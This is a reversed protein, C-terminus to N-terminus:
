RSDLHIRSNGSVRDKWLNNEQCIYEQIQGNPDWTVDFRVKWPANYAAPDDITAEYHLTYLDTRTLREILHLQDTHPKGGMDIWTGENFGVTDIVLTDGDWHGVSHGMWTPNLADGEPHSRGDMYILRWVHAGGEYIMLIRKQEPLQIIEMPYPTTMMRPGAPPLCFGQPDYKSATEVKRYNALERAWQQYPIEKPEAIATYDQYQQPAWYGKNPEVPGLNPTGDKLRPAPPPNAPKKPARVQGALPTAFLVFVFLLRSM